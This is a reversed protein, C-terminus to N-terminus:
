KKLAEQREKLRIKVVKRILSVPLPKDFPFQLTGKSKRYKSLGPISKEMAPTVPYVGIHHQHAALYVLYKGKYKFTPIQYSITEEVEPVAERVIKRIAQLLAKVEKPFFSLYEDVTKCVKRKQM